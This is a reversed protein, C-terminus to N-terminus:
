AVRAAIQRMAMRDAGRRSFILLWYMCGPVAFLWPKTVDFPIVCATAVSMLSVGLTCAWGFIRARTVIREDADLGIREASRLAHRFLLVFTLSIAALGIGFVVYAARLEDISHIEIPSDALWQHTASAFSISFLLRLPYVYSLVFFVLILSLVVATKDELDYHRSWSRHNAWFRSIMLFCAAFTPLGRLAQLMEPVSSPVHGVSMVILTVAFAFASDVFGELRTAQHRRVRMVNDPNRQKIPTNM